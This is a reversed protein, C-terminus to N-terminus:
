HSPNYSPRQSSRLHLHPLSSLLSSYHKRRDPTLEGLLKSIPDRVELIVVLVEWLGVLGRVKDRGRGGEWIGGEDLEDVRNVM